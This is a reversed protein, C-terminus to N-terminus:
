FPYDDDDDDVEPIANESNNSSSAYTNQPAAYHSGATQDKPIHKVDPFQTELHKRVKENIKNQWTEHYLVVRVPKGILSDLFKEFSEFEAGSPIKVASAIGMLINCNYGDTEKDEPLPFPRKWVDNFIYGNKYPQEVDNRIVYFFNVAMKENKTTKYKWKTIIVEYEGEPKLNSEDALDTNVKFSM